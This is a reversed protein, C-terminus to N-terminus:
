LPGVPGVFINHLVVWIALAGIIALMARTFPWLARGSTANAARLSAFTREYKM